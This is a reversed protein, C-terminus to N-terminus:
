TPIQFDSESIGSGGFYSMMGNLKSKIKKVKDLPYGLDHTLAIICWMALVEDFNIFFRKEKEDGLKKFDWHLKSKFKEILWIGILWVRFVHLIHDRYFKDAGYLLAEFERFEKFYEFLKDTGFAIQDRMHVTKKSITYRRRGGKKDYSYERKDNYKLFSIADSLLDKWLGDINDVKDFCINRNEDFNYIFAEIKKKLTPTLFKPPFENCNEVIHKDCLLTM